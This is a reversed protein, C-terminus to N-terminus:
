GSNPKKKMKRDFAMHHLIIQKNHQEARDKKEAKRYSVSAM